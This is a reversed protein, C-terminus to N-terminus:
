TSEIYRNNRARYLVVQVEVSFQAIRLSNFLIFYSLTSNFDIETFAIILFATM